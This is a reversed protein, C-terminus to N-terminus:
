EKNKSLEIHYKKTGLCIQAEPMNKKAEQEKLLKVNRPNELRTLKISVKSSM